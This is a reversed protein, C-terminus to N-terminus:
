YKISVIDLKSIDLLPEVLINNTKVSSVRGVKLGPPYYRSDATTYLVDGVALNDANEAHLLDYNLDAGGVLVGKSKQDFLSVPVRSKKDSLLMVRSYGQSIEVIRGVLINGKTVVQNLKVGDLSGLKLIAYSSSEDGVLGILKTTIQPIDSELFKLQSKLLKNEKNLSLVESTFDRYKALELKLNLNELELEKNGIYVKYVSSVKTGAAKVNLAVKEIVFSSVELLINSVSNNYTRYVLILVLMLLCVAVFKTAGRSFIKLSNAEEKVRNALIAM